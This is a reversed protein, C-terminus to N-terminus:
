LPLGGTSLLSAFPLIDLSGLGPLSSTAGSGGGTLSVVPLLLMDLPAYLASLGKITDGGLVLDTVPKALGTNSLIMSALPNDTLVLSGVIPLGQEVGLQTIATVLDTPVLSSIDLGQAHSPSAAFTLAATLAGTAIRRKIIM